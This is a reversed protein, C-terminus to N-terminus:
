RRLRFFREGALSQNTFYYHNAILSYPPPIVTWTAFCNNGVQMPCLNDTFLLQFGAANTEWRVVTNSECHFIALYPHDPDNVLPPPELLALAYSFNETLGTERCCLLTYTGTNRVCPIRIPRTSASSGSGLLVRDPGYVRVIGEGAGSLTSFSISITDGAIATFSYADLDGTTLQAERREGSALLDLGEDPEPTNPGPAKVVCLTYDYSRSFDNDIVVLTYPGSNSLRLENHGSYGNGDYLDGVFQADRDYVYVYPEGGGNTLVLAACIVDNSEAMFCFMDVDAASNISGGAVRGFTLNEAGDGPEAVNVGCSVKTVSMSYAYPIAFDNEIVVWKYPGSKNLRFGGYARRGERSPDYLSGVVDGDPDYLYMYPDGYDSTRAFGAHVVDNSQAMFCFTDVDAASNISGGVVQGFTLNEAGDGAEAVNVGCSVKTVSMSYAYPTAFGNEIVVWKYPGSKNLRFGGYARRGARSPDYLSGVVDGDPDYLYMYPDGYDSTRAFGAHVVDNSEAMFCFTDVDAASNISGGVVRGFTLNEAGDGPEAVNLGCGVKTVSLNYDYPTAFDNAIMVCKYPGSKNLRFGGYAGFGGYVGGVFDGDPDYLYMYPDGYDSMRAFGAHVVDNSEATFCFVDVDARNSIRGSTVQGYTLNEGGDGMEMLNTGCAVATVTLFYGYSGDRDYEIVELMYNGTKELREDRHVSYGNGDCWGRVLNTEPDFLYIFPNGNGNTAALAIYVLDNSTAAFTYCNTQADTIQGQLIQGPLLSECAAYSSEAFALFQLCLVLVSRCIKKM